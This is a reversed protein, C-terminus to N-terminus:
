DEINFGTDRLMNCYQNLSNYHPTTETNIIEEAIEKKYMEEAKSKTIKKM